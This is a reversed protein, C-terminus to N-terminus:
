WHDTRGAAVVISRVALEAGFAARRQRWSAGGAAGAVLLALPEAPLAATGKALRRRSRRRGRGGDSEGGGEGAAAVLHLAEQALAAALADVEGVVFPQVPVNGDGDDLGLPQVLLAEGPDAVLRLRHSAKAVM